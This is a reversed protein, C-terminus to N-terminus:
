QATTEAEAEDSADDDPADAFTPSHKWRNDARGISMLIESHRARPSMGGFESPGVSLEPSWGRRFAREIKRAANQTKM